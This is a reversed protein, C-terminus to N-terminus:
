PLAGSTEVKPPAETTARLLINRAALIDRDGQLKCSPCDFVKSSGLKLNIKGCRTCTKSTWAENVILLLKGHQKAKAILRQRFTFHSLMGMKRKTDKSLPRKPPRRPKIQQAEDTPPRAIMRKSGFRPLLIVDYDKCLQNATKWHLEDRLNRIRALLKLRAARLRKRRKRDTETKAESQLTDSHHALRIFRQVDGHGFEVVEGSPSYGTLFTRVGPDLAILKENALGSWQRKRDIPILLDFCRRFRDHRIKCDHNPHRWLTTDPALGEQLRSCQKDGLIKGDRRYPITTPLWTPWFCCGLPSFSVARASINITEQPQKAFKPHMEAGPKKAVACFTAKFENCAAQRQNHPVDMVREPTGAEHLVHSALDDLPVSNTKFTAQRRQQWESTRQMWTVCRNYTYRYAEFMQHLQKRQAATPRIRVRLCWLEDRSLPEKNAALEHAYQQLSREEDRLVGKTEDQKKQKQQQRVERAGEERARKVQPRKWTPELDHAEPSLPMLAAACERVEPDPHEIELERLRKWSSRFENKATKTGLADFAQQEQETYRRNKRDRKQADALRRAKNEAQQAKRGDRKEEREEATLKPKKPKPEERNVEPEPEPEPEQHQFLRSAHTCLENVRRTLHAPINSPPNVKAERLHFWSEQEVFVPQLGVPLFLTAADRGLKRSWFQAM